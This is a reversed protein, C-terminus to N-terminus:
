NINMWPHEIRQISGSKMFMDCIGDKHRQTKNHISRNCIKYHGRCIPCFIEINKKFIKNFKKDYVNDNEVDDSNNLTAACEIMREDNRKDWRLMNYEDFKQKLLGIKEIDKHMMVVMRHYESMLKSLVKDSCISDYYSAEDENDYPKVGNVYDELWENHNM